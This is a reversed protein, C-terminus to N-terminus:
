GELDIGMAVQVSSNIVGEKACVCGQETRQHKKHKHSGQVKPGSVTADRLRRTASFLCNRSCLLHETFTQQILDIVLMAKALVKQTRSRLSQLGSRYLIAHFVQNYSKLSTNCTYSLINISSRPGFLYTCTNLQLHTDLPFTVNPLHKSAASGSPSNTPVLHVYRHDCSSHTSQWLVSQSDLGDLSTRPTQAQERGFRSTLNVHVTQHSHSILLNLLPAKLSRDGGAKVEAFPIFILLHRM